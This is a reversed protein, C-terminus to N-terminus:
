RRDTIINSTLFRNQIYKALAKGIFDGGKVDFHDATNDPDYGFDRMDKGEFIEYFSYVDFGEKLYVAREKAQIFGTALMLINNQRCLLSFQHVHKKWNEEGLMYHYRPPIRDKTRPPHRRRAPEEDPAAKRTGVLGEQFLLADPMHRGIWDYLYKQGFSSYIIKKWVRVLLKSQHILVNIKKYKPQIHNTGHTDNITYQLIVLDLEFPM